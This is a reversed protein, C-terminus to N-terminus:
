GRDSLTNLYNGYGLDGLWFNLLNEVGNATLTAGSLGDIKGDSTNATPATGKVLDIQPGSTGFAQEGVWLNKWKPNDVEGGLGPTEGHNYFTLGQITKGDKSLALFGYLTSWLGKGEVKIIIREVVNDKYVKFVEKYKPLCSIKPTNDEPSWKEDGDESMEQCKDDKQAQYSDWTSKDIPQGSKLDIFGLELRDASDSFYKTVDQETVQIVELSSTASPVKRTISQILGTQKLYLHPNTKVKNKSKKLGSVSIVNKKLDLEANALQREKL